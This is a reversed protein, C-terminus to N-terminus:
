YKKMRKKAHAGIDVTQACGDIVDIEADTLNRTERWAGDPYKWDGRSNIYDRYQRGNRTGLPVWNQGRTRNAYYHVCADNGQQNSEDTEEDM